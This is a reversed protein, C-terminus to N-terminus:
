KLVITSLRRYKHYDRGTDQQDEACEQEYNWKRLHNHAVLVHVNTVVPEGDPEADGAGEEEHGPDVDKEDNAEADVGQDEDDDVHGHQHNPPANSHVPAPDTGRWQGLVLVRGFIFLFVKSSKKQVLNIQLLKFVVNAPLLKIEHVGQAPNM